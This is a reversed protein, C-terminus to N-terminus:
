AGEGLLYGIRNRGALMAEGQAQKGNV